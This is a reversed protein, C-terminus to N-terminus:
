RGVLAGTQADIYYDRREGRDTAWQIRYFTRGGREEREGDLHHGPGALGQVIRIAQAMSIEGGTPGGPSARWSEGPQQYPNPRGRQQYAPPPPPEARYRPDYGGGGRNPPPGREEERPRGGGNGRNDNGRNDSARPPPGGRREDNGRNGEDRRGRGRDDKRDDAFRLQAQVIQGLGGPAQASAIAPASLGLAAAAALLVIRKM